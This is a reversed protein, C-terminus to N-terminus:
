HCGTLTIAIFWSASLLGQVCAPAPSTLRLPPCPLQWSVCYLGFGPGTPLWAAAVPYRAPRCWSYLHANGSAPVLQLPKCQDTLRQLTGSM